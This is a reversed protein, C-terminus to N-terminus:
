GISATMTMTQKNKKKACGLAVTERGDQLVRTPILITNYKGLDGALDKPPTSDFVAVHLLSSRIGSM